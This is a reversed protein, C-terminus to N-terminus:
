PGFEIKIQDGDKWVYDAFKDNPVENVVVRLTGTQGDPCADGNCYDAFCTNTFPIGLQDFLGGLRLKEPELIETGSPDTKILSHFHLKNREKHTHQLTLDGAELGLRYPEGCVGMELYSHIHLALDCGEPGCVVFGKEGGAQYFASMSYGIVIFVAAFGAGWLVPGLHLHMRREKEKKKKRPLAFYVGAAFSIVGAIISGYLVLMARFDDVRIAFTPQLIEDDELRYVFQVFYDGAFSPTWTFSYVGPSDETVKGYSLDKKTAADLIQGQIELGTVHQYKEDKIEVAFTLARNVYLKKPATFAVDYGKIHVIYQDSEITYYGFEDYYGEDVAEGHGYALPLLLLLCGALILFRSVHM